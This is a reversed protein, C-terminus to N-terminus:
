TLGVTGKNNYVNYNGIEYSHYIFTNEINYLICIEIM